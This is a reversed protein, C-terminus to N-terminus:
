LVKKTYLEQKKYIKEYLLDECNINILKIKKNVDNLTIIEKNKINRDIYFINEKGNDVRGFSNIRNILIDLDNEVFTRHFNNDELELYYYFGYFYVICSFDSKNKELIETIIEKILFQIPIVEINNSGKSLAELRNGGKISYISILSKKRDYQYHYLIDNNKHFEKSLKYEIYAYIHSKKINETFHKSYLEEEVIIFERNKSMLKEVEEFQEFLYEKQKYIFSNKKVILISKKM